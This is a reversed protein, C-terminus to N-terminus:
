KDSNTRKGPDRFCCKQFCHKQGKGLLRPESSIALIVVKCEKRGVLALVKSKVGFHRFRRTGGMCFFDNGFLGSECGERTASAQPPSPCSLLCRNPCVVAIQATSRSNGVDSAVALAPLLPRRMSCRAYAEHHKPCGLVM